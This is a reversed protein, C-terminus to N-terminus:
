KLMCFSIRFHIAYQASIVPQSDKAKPVIRQNKVLLTITINHSLITVLFCNGRFMFSTVRYKPVVYTDERCGDIFSWLTLNKRDVRLEVCKIPIYVVTIMAVKVYLEMRAKSRDFSRGKDKDKVMALTKKM